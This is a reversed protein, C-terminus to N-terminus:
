KNLEGMRLRTEMMNQVVNVVGLHTNWFPSLSLISFAFFSLFEGESSARHVHKLKSHTVQNLFSGFSVSVPSLVSCSPPKRAHCRLWSCVSFGVASSMIKSCNEKRQKKRWVREIIIISMCKTKNKITFIIM